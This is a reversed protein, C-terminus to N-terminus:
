IRSNEEGGKNNEIKIFKEGKHSEVWAMAEAFHEELRKQALRSDRKEIAELLLKHQRIFSNKDKTKYRHLLVLNRQVTSFIKILNILLSNNSNKYLTCHFQSHTEVLEKEEFNSLVQFELKELIEKSQAINEKTFKNIDKGIFWSELCFRVELIEQFNKIDMELNYPLGKLIAEFNFERIFRGVGPRVEIIGLTELRKLAERIATRSIGLREALDYETPFPDGSKMGNEIIYLKLQEQILGQLDQTKLNKLEM